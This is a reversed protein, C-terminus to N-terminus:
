NGTDGGRVVTNAAHNSVAPITHDDIANNINLGIISVTISRDQNNNEPVASVTALIVDPLLMWEGTWTIVTKVGVV